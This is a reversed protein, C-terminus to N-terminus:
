DKLAQVAKRHGRADFMSKTRPRNRVRAKRSKLRDVNKEDIVKERKSFEEFILERKVKEVVSYRKQGDPNYKKQARSFAQVLKRVKQKMEKCEKVLTFKEKKKREPDMCRDKTWSLKRTFRGRRKKKKGYILEQVRQEDQKHKVFKMKFAMLQVSM